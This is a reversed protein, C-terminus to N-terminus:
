VLVWLMGAKDKMTLCLQWTGLCSMLDKFVFGEDQTGKRRTKYATRHPCSEQHKDCDEQSWFPLYQHCKSSPPDFLQSFGWDKVVRNLRQTVRLDGVELYSTLHEVIFMWLMSDSVVLLIPFSTVNARFILCACFVCHFNYNSIRAAVYRQAQPQRM